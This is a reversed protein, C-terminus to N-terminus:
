SAQGQLLQKLSNSYFELLPKKKENILIEGNRLWVIKRRKLLDLAVDVTEKSEESAIFSEEFSILEKKRTKEEKKLHSLSEISSEFDRGLVIRGGQAKIRDRVQGVMLILDDLRVRDSGLSLLVHSVICVPTVPMSSGIQVLLRDAFHQVRDLREYRDLTFLDKEETKLFDSLFVPDGFSV